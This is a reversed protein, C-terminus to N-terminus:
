LKRCLYNIEDKVMEDIPFGREKYGLYAFYEQLHMPYYVDTPIGQEKLKSKVDDSNKIRVSNYTKEDIGVVEYKEAFAYALFLGVYGLGIIAIKDQM